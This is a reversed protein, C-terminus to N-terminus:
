GVYLATAGPPINDVKSLYSVLKTVYQKPYL